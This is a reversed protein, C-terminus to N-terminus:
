LAFPANLVCQQDLMISIIKPFAFDLFQQSEHRDVHVLASNLTKVASQWVVTSKVRLDEQVISFLELEEEEMDDATAARNAGGPYGRVCMGRPASSM